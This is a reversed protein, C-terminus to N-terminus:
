PPTNIFKQPLQLSTDASVFVGDHKRIFNHLVCTAKVINEAKDVNCAIPTHFVRFKSCLMGFACEVSKRARSLRYNFIRKANNLTRQPYPKMIEQRLAFAEDAVFFMPFPCGNDDRPLSTAPPINLKNEDLLRGIQSNKFVAGDSNRGFDGIYM